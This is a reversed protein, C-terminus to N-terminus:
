IKPLKIGFLFAIKSITRGILIFPFFPSTFTNLFEATDIFVYRGFKAMAYTFASESEPYDLLEKYDKIALDGYYDVSYDYTKLNEEKLTIIGYGRTLPNNYSRAGITPVNIFDTGKYNAIYSNIHDHGFFTAMVDGTELIADVHGANGNSIAPLEFMLGKFGSLKPLPFYKQENISWDDLGLPIKAMGIADYTECPAIHQFNIAPVLEGGNSNKLEAAKNKYWEIQSERVYDYGDEKKDPNDSGSDTFWLNFAIKSGDSSLIPLNCNGCGYIEPEADYTLCGYEQYIKLLEEKEVEHEQDHNGFVIAFPIESELCPKLLEKIATSQKEHGDAVTNDGLFVVLDPNHKKIGVEMLGITSPSLTEDDQSDAFLLIKFEGNENFQLNKGEAAFCTMSFSSVLIVLSMVVIFLKKIKKM